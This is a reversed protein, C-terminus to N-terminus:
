ALRAIDTLERTSLGNETLMTALKEFSAAHNDSTLFFGTERFSNLGEKPIVSEMMSYPYIM